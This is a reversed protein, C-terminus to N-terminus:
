IVFNSEYNTFYKLKSRITKFTEIQDIYNSILKLKVMAIQDFEM